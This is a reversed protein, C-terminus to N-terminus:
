ASSVATQFFPFSSPDREPSRFSFLVPFLFPPPRPTVFFRGRNNPHFRTAPRPGQNLQQLLIFPGLIHPFLLSMVYTEFGRPEPPPHNKEAVALVERFYSPLVGPIFLPGSSFCRCAIWNAGQLGPRLQDDGQAITELLNFLRGPM